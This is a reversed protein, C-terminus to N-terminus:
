KTQITRGELNCIANKSASGQVRSDQEREVLCMTAM